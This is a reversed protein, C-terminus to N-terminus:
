PRSSTPARRHDGRVRPAPDRQPRAAPHRGLRGAGRAAAALAALGDEPTADACTTLTAGSSPDHVDFREGGSAERWGGGILLKTPVSDILSKQTIAM